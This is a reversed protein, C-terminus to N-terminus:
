RSLVEDYVKRYRSAMADVSSNAIALDRGHAAIRENQTGSACRLLRALDDVTGATLAIRESNLDDPDVTVGALDWCVVPLGAMAAQLAAVGVDRGDISLSCYVDAIDFLEAHDRRYGPFVVDDGVGLQEARHRLEDALPGTGALVLTPKNGADAEAALQAFADLFKDLHRQEHLRALSLYVPGTHDDRFGLSARYSDRGDAHSVPRIERAGLPVPVVKASPVGGSALDDGIGSLVPCFTDVVRQARVTADFVWSPSSARHTHVTAVVRAKGPWRRFVTLYALAVYLHVHVVDYRNNKLLKRLRLLPRPDAAALPSYAAGTGLDHHVIGLEAIEGANSNDTFVTALELEVDHSPLTRLLDFVVDQAGGVGM